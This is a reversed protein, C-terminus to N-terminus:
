SVKRIMLVKIILLVFMFVAAYPQPSIIFLLVGGASLLISVINKSRNWLTHNFNQMALTLIGWASLGIILVFYVNKMYPAIETLSLLSVNQVGIKAEQGFLPLFLYLLASIDLLGFM